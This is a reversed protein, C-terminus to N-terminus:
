GNFTHTDVEMAGALLMEDSPEASVASQSSRAAAAVKERDRGMVYSQLSYMACGPKVRQKKLWLLYTQCETDTSEYLSAYTQGIHKGFVVVSQDQSRPSASGETACRGEVAAMVGSFLKAYSALADKNVMLPSVSTDGSEREKRHSALLGVTYGLDNSLLWNFTQGRYQGFQLQSESLVLRSCTPDGGGEQVRAKAEERVKEPTKVKWVESSGKGHCAQSVRLAEPSPRLNLEASLPQVRFAPRHDM